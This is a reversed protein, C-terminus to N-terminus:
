SLLTGNTIINVPVRKKRIFEIIEFIDERLMPEGGTITINKPKGEKIIKDIAKLYESLFLKGYNYDQNAKWINYCYSCDQNCKTEVELIFIPRNKKKM